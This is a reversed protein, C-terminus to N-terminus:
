LDADHSPVPEPSEPSAPIETTAGAPTSGATAAESPGFTKGNKRLWDGMAKTTREGEYQVPNSKDGAPYLILSPFGQIKAPTDNETADVKAIVIKDNDKFEKGLEEWRPALNKCHGCWPAYFEVFVDKDNKMVIDEFTKGVVVTVPEDNKEPPEQSKLTASLEGKIFANLYEILNASTVDKVVDYVYNKGEERDEAVIGPLHGSPIGFHKAHEAWKIGDLKVISLKGKFEKAATTMDKIYQGTKESQEDIFMWVLPFGRDLYKQFNEPGIDGVLPFAEALIFTKLADVTIDGSHIIVDVDGVPSASDAKASTDPTDFSNDKVVAVTNLEATGYKSFLNVDNVVAFNYENRLQKATDIFVKGNESETDDFFGIIAIGDKEIFEAVGKDTDIVIYAPENQKRMYTVIDDETRGGGYESPESGDNRFIKL